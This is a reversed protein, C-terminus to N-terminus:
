DSLLYKSAFNELKEEVDKLKQNESKGLDNKSKKYQLHLLEAQTILVKLMLTLNPSGINHREWNRNLIPNEYYPVERLKTTDYDYKELFEYIETELADDSGTLDLFTEQVRSSLVELEAIVNAFEGNTNIPLALGIRENLDNTVAEIRSWYVEHEARVQNLLTSSPNFRNAEMKTQHNNKMQHLIESSFANIDHDVVQHHRYCLLILNQESRRFDDDSEPKYRPGKKSAGEIHCLQGVFLNSETVLEHECDPFSCQNGSRAFLTRITGLKYNRAKTM